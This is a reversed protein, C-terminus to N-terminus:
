DKGGIKHATMYDVVRQSTTVAAYPSAQWMENGTSTRATQILDNRLRTNFAIIENPIDGVNQKTDTGEFVSQVIDRIQEDKNTKEDGTFYTGIRMNLSVSGVDLSKEKITDYIANQFVKLCKPKLEKQTKKLLKTREVQTDMVKRVKADDAKNGTINADGLKMQEVTPKPIDTTEQEADAEDLGFEELLLRRVVNFVMEPESENLKGDKVMQKVAFHYVVKSERELDFALKSDNLNRFEDSKVYDETKSVEPTTVEMGSLEKEVQEKLKEVVTKLTNEAVKGEGENNGGDEQTEEEAEKLSKSKKKASLGTADDKGKTKQDYSSTYKDNDDCNEIKIVEKPDVKNWNVGKNESTGFADTCIQAIMKQNYKPYNPDRSDVMISVSYDAKDIASKYQPTNKGRRNLFMNLEGREWAKVHVDSNPYRKDFINRINDPATEVNIDHRGILQKWQAPDFMKGINVPKGYVTIKMSKLDSWVNDFWGRKRGSFSDNVTGNKRDDSIDLKYKVSYGITRDNVSSGDSDQTQADQKSQDDTSKESNVGVDSTTTKEEFLMHLIKRNMFESYSESVQETEGGNQESNDQNEPSKSTEPTEQPKEDDEGDGKGDLIPLLMEEKVYKADEKGVFYTTYEKVADLFASKQPVNDEDKAKMVIQYENNKTYILANADDNILLNDIIVDPAKGSAREKAVKDLQLIINPFSVSVDKSM